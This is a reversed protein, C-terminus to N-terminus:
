DGFLAKAEAPALRALIRCVGNLHLGDANATLANARDMLRNFTRSRMWKHKYIMGDDGEVGARAYLGDARRQARDAPSLGQSVYRLRLCRRCGWYRRHSAMVVVECRRWCSPCRWYRREGGFRCRLTQIPIEVQISTRENNDSLIAYQLELADDSATYGVSACV